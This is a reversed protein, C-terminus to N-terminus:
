SHVKLVTDLLFFTVQNELEGLTAALCDFFDHGVEYHIDIGYRIM